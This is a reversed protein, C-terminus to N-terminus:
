NVFAAQLFGIIVGLAGGVAVLKWEDEKFVPHLIGEFDRTPLQLMKDRLTQEMGISAEFYKSAEQEHMVRPMLDQLGVVTDEKMAELDEDTLMYRSAFATVASSSMVKDFARRYHKATIERFKSPNEVSSGSLIAEVLRQATLVQTAVLRSYVASVERQRQLFLGQFTIGYITVPDIPEFCVKLSLANTMAGVVLGFVPFVVLGQTTLHLPEESQPHWLIWVLMQLFGFAFGLTAGNNRIFTLEQYGCQIFMEVLVEKHQEFHHQVLQTLDVLSEVKDQVEAFVDQTIEPGLAVASEILNDRMGQPMLDWLDPRRRQIVAPLLAELEVAITGQVKSALVEPRVKSFEEKVNILRNLILHAAIHIMRKAKFPVIGQWGPLGINTSPIRLIGMFELPYFMMFLAFWIHFYTFAASILPISAYALLKRRVWAAEGHNPPEDGYMPVSSIVPDPLLFIITVLVAVLVMLLIVAPSPAVFLPPLHRPNLELLKEVYRREPDVRVYDGAGFLVLHHDELDLTGWRRHKSRSAETEDEDGVGICPCAAM